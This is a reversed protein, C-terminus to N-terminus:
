VTSPHSQYLTIAIIIYKDNIGTLINNLINDTSPNILLKLASMSQLLQKSDSFVLIPGSSRSFNSAFNKNRKTGATSNKRFRM